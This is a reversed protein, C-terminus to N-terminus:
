ADAGALSGVVRRALRADVGHAHQSRRNVFKAGLPKSDHCSPAIAM